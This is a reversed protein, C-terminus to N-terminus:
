RPIIIREIPKGDNDSITLHRDRGTKTYAMFALALGLKVIETISASQETALQELEAYQRASLNVNLRRVARVLKEKSEQEM